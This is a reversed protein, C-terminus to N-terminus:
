IQEESKGNNINRVNSSANVKLALVQEILSNNLFTQNEFVGLKAEIIKGLDYCTTNDVDILIGTLGIREFDDKHKAYFAECCSGIFSDIKEKKLQWLTKELMEYNQITIPRLGYKRALQFADGISCQGCENCGEKKRYDCDPRKGCYPLLLVSPKSINIFDDGVTFISNVASPHIGEKLMDIKKVADWIAKIFDAESLGPASVSNAKFFDTVVTSIHNYQAPSNKLICELDFIANRPYVFFDGTILISNIRKLLSDMVLSVRILGGKAKYLNRLEQHKFHSYKIKEIWDMSQFEPLVETFLKREVSSLPQQIFSVGLIRSFGHVIASKIEDLPPVYGLEWKLCTVREKISQIEKDKLKEVPIRLAKLMVDVDFDILLTGQFMFANGLETGGTGSIKRKNVEIDNRFRYRANVGLSNLAYCVAECMKKYLDEIKLPIGPHDKSAFIEWGLQTEDWYLAGGGTIRRNIDIFNNKCYDIRVEQEVMQHHGVLVCPPSFQLFRLTNPVCNNSKARLIAEDLAMNEAATLVGTDLLRWTDM